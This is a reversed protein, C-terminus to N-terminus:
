LSCMDKTGKRLRCKGSRQHLRDYWSRRKCNVYIVIGGGYEQGLTIKAPVPDTKKATTNAPKNAPTTAKPKSPTTAKPKTEPTTPQVPDTKVPETSAPAVEAPPATEAIAVTSTAAADLSDQIAKEVWYLSDIREKAQTYYKGSPFTIMYQAFATSDNKQLADMWSKRDDGKGSGSSMMWWM